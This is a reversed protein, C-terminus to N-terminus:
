VKKRNNKLQNIMSNLGPIKLERTLEIGEELKKQAFDKVSYKVYTSKDYEYYYITIIPKQENKQVFYCNSYIKENNENRKFCEARHIIKELEHNPFLEELMKDHKWRREWYDVMINEQPDINTLVHDIKQYIDDMLSIDYKLLYLYEETYPNGKSIYGLKEHIEKQRQRSIIYEVSNDLSLGFSKTLTHYRINEIDDQLDISYAPSGDRPYIINFVHHFNNNDEYDIRTEINIGLIKLIYEIIKSASMCIVRGSKFITDIKFDLSNNIYIQKQAKNGSFYFDKNFLLKNGLDLYVLMVIEDEKLPENEEQSKQQIIQKIYEVYRDLEEM